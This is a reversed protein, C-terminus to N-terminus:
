KKPEDATPHYNDLGTTSRGAGEPNPQCYGGESRISKECGALTRYVCEVAQNGTEVGCWKLDTQAQVASTGTLMGLALAGAILISRNMPIEKFTHHGNRAVAQLGRRHETDAAV